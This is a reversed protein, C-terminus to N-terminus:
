HRTRQQIFRAINAREFLAVLVISIAFPVIFYLLRFILLAALLDAQNIDPLAIFFMVELVGLGGPAHSLLAASFSALFIGLVVLYGPNSDVPLSFYIIGAAGLIEAPGILLQQIVIRLRPYRLVFSRIKLPPLNLASGIVYLATFLLMGAGVAYSGAVPFDQWFYGLLEPHLLLVVGGLFIGALAFTFSCLAVLVGIEAASLGKSSYARYRVLAGSVVSAGINHALAYTTFSTACVFGIHVHRRLHRLAIRDYGALAGFALLTCVIAMLWHHHPIASFSALVDNLSIDRLQKVLLWISLGVASIGVVPWIYDKNLKM